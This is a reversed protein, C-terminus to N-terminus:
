PSPVPPVTWPNLYMDDESIVGSENSSSYEELCDAMMGYFIGPKEKTGLHFSSRAENGKASFYNGLAYHMPADSYEAPLIMLQGIRWAQAVGSIGVFASKLTIVTASPVDVIEYWSLDTVGNLQFSLGIMEPTFTAQSATVYQSGNVVTVTHGTSVNTIDDVSLDHDQPQYYFRLGNTVDQAPVPWLSLEDNGIMFYWAPWNSATQWSVIQRWEYESRVEKVTPQFNNSVQVTMGLVRVCDIPTQYIAQGAILNTFQQKRTFYRSLKANFLQYGTNLDQKLQILTGPSNDRSLSQTKDTLQTWTLPM